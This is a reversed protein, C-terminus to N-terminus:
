HKLRKLIAVNLWKSWQKLIESKGTFIPIANTKDFISYFFPHDAQFTPTPGFEISACEVMM